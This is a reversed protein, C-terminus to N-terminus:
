TRRSRLWSVKDPVSANQILSIAGPEAPLDGHAGKRVPKPRSYVCFDAPTATILTTAWGVLSTRFADDLQGDGALSGDLLPVIFTSGKVRRGGAIGDTGWVVRAGTGMVYASSPAGVVTGGGSANWTGNIDGTAVDLTDGSTPVTITCSSPFSSQLSTYFAKVAAPWGALDPATCYFTAVGGGPVAPGSLTVRMRHVDTM